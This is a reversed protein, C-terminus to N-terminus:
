KKKGKKKPTSKKKLGNMVNAATQMVTEMGLAGCMIIVPAFNSFYRRNTEWCLLFLWIGFVALYPALMQERRKDKKFIFCYAALLMFIMVAIHVSTVYHSYVSYHEGDYLVWDHLAIDHEPYINLFDSIGYTGDGFDAASKKGILDYIGLVGREKLRMGIQNILAKNRNQPALARTFEYDGPNYFGDDKLGMMTWHLFPTNNADAIEKDLHSSYIYLNFCTMVVAIVGIVCVAAKLTEKIKDKFCLDILIAVVMIIVTFKILGGVGAALGTLLYFILKDRGTKEKSKLYLWFILIPFLMSMTDTYNAAAMFWFQASVAFVTLAFLGSRASASFKRCILSVLAMSLVLMVSDIFVAIAYYDTIGIFSALKFFVYLFAMSGLNNPFYSFYEYYGAFTGTNVWEEAGQNVAGIDFWTDHRLALGIVMELVFMAVTFIILIKNYNKELFPEYKELLKYILCLGAVCLITVMVLYSTEHYKNKFIVNILIFTFCVAFLVYFAHMLKSKTKEM